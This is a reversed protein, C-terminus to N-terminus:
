FTAFRTPQNTLLHGFIECETEMGCWRLAIPPHPWECFMPTQASLTGDLFEWMQAFKAALRLNFHSLMSSHKVRQQDPYESLKLYSAFCRLLVCYLSVICSDCKSFKTARGIWHVEISPCLPGGFIFPTSFKDSKCNKCKKCTSIKIKVWDEGRLFWRVSQSM